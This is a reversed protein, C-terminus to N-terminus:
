RFLPFAVAAGILGLIFPIYINTQAVAEHKRTATPIIGNVVFDLLGQSFTSGLRVQFLNAAGFFLGFFPAYFGFFILPASFAFLFEIPETIGLGVCTVVAGMYYGFKKKRAEKDLTSWM